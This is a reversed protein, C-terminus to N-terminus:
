IYSFSVVAWLKSINSKEPLNAKLYFRLKKENKIRAAFIKASPYKSVACIQAVGKMNTSSLRELNNGLGDEIFANNGLKVYSSVSTKRTYVADQIPKTMDESSYDMVVKHVHPLKHEIDPDIETPDVDLFNAFKVIAAPGLDTINSLYHSIASQSWELDKAAEVQTFHMEVKKQQWIKRLNAVAVPIQKSDNMHQGMM